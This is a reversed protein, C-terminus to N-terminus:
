CDHSTEKIELNKFTSTKEGKHIVIDFIDLETKLQNEVLKLKVSFCIKIDDRGIEVLKLKVSFCIKIDDCVIHELEVNIHGPMNHYKSRIITFRFIFDQSVINLIGSLVSKFTPVQAINKDEFIAPYYKGNNTSINKFVDILNIGPCTNELVYNQYARM